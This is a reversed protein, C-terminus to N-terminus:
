VLDWSQTTENWTYEENTLSIPKPVPAVWKHTLNNEVWSPYPKAVWNVQDEYWLYEQGDNPKIVPAVWTNTTEDVIWSPFPTPGRDRELALHFYLSYLLVYLDQYTSTKNEIYEETVPNKLRFVTSANEVTFEEVINKGSFNRATSGNSLLIIEEEDFRITPTEDLKNLCLVQFSRIWSEGSVSGQKYKPM